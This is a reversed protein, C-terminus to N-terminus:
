SSQMTGVGRVPGGWWAAFTNNDTVAGASSKLRTLQTKLKLTPQAMEKYTAETKRLDQYIKKDFVAAFAKVNKDKSKMLVSFYELCTKALKSAAAYREKYTGNQEVAIYKEFSPGMDLGGLGSPVGAADRMKELQSSDARADIERGEAFNSGL